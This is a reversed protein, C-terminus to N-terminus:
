FSVQTRFLFINPKESVGAVEADVMIYNWMFRVNRAAYWNLGLTVNNQEGGQVDGDNLNINSYRLGVEWSGVAPNRFAGGRYSRQSGGIVYSAQAYYGDFDFSDLGNGRDVNATLYEGQIVLPGVQYGAEIGLRNISDVDAITGTDVLRVGTVRSEPRSRFRATEDESHAPNETTLAVGLHFVNDDSRIPTGFFRAGVGMGEDGGEAVRTNNTGVEQGFLMSSFAWNDGSSSYGVGLRRSQTFDTPLSREIFALHNSSTLQDMGFPVKFNGITLAGNEFGRYRLYADRFAVGNEAFDIESQYSWNDDISGSVGLRARRLRFGDALEVNDEDHVAYDLHIRGRPEPSAMAPAMVAVGVVATIALVGYKSISNM